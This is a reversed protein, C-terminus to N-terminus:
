KKKKIKKPKIGCWEKLLKITHKEIMKAEKRTTLKIVPCREDNLWDSSDHM